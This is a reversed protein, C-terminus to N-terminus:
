GHEDGYQQELYARAAEVMYEDDNMQETSVKAIVRAFRILDLVAGTVPREVTVTEIIPKNPM